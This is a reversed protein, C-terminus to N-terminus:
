LVMWVGLAMLVLGGVARFLSAYKTDLVKQIAFIAFGFVILNNLMFFVVYLLIYLYYSLTSLEFLTLIHTYIAPLASSCVFEIANVTFALGIIGIFSIINVPKAVINQIATRTKQRTNFDGVECVAVGKNQILDYLTNIGFGIAALGILLTLTGTYGVVLFVNLWATMFLYYLIGSATIFTGVILLMKRRENVGSMLSILYILVWMACPNFGDVLGLIITLVPLSYSSATIYGIIPININQDELSSSLENKNSSSKEKQNISKNKVNDSSLWSKLLKGTTQESDFGVYFNNNYVLLPVGSRARYDSFQNLLKKYQEKGAPTTINVTELKFNNKELDSVYAIAKHCHPCKPHYAVYFVGEEIGESSSFKSSGNYFGTFVKFVFVILLGTFLLYKFRNKKTIM